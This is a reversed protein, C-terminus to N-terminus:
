KNMSICVFTGGIPLMGVLSNGAVVPDNTDENVDSEM